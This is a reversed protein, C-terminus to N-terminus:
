LWLCGAYQCLRSSLVDVQQGFASKDHEAPLSHQPSTHQSSPCNHTVSPSRLFQTEAAGFAPNVDAVLVLIVLEVIVLEVIILVVIALVVIVFVVIALVLVIPIHVILVILDLAVVGLAVCVGSPLAPPFSSSSSGFFPNLTDSLIASPQPTPIPNGM